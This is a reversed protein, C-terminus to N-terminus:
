VPLIVDFVSRFTLKKALFRECDGSTIRLLMCGGGIFASLENLATRNAAETARTNVSRSHSVLAASFDALTIHQVARRRADEEPDFTRLFRVAEPKTRAGTSRSHRKGTEDHYFLHYVGSRKALFM